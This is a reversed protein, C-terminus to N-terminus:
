RQPTEPAYWVYRDNMNTDSGRGDTISDGVIVFARTTPASWVETASVFYWHAASQTSSDTMNAANIYNGFSFWSTVRSGPHSTIYNSAQGNAIYMTVALESQPAITFDVPDSVALAGNPVIISSNGSFKLQRLTTVDIESAGTTGNKPLAITVATIPLAVDSFANSFRLRINNGGISM